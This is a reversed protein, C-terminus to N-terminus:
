PKSGDIIGSFDYQFDYVFLNYSARPLHLQPMLGKNQRNKLPQKLCVKSYVIMSHIGFKKVPTSTIKCCSEEIAHVMGISGLCLM